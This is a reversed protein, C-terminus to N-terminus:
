TLCRKSAAAFISVDDNGPLEMRGRNLCVSSKEPMSFADKLQLYNGYFVRLSSSHRRPIELM